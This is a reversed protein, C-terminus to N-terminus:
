RIILAIRMGITAKPSPPPNSALEFFTSAFIIIKTRVKKDYGCFIFVFYIERRVKKKFFFYSSFNLAFRNRGARSFSRFDL